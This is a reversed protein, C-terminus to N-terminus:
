SNKCPVTSGLLAHLYIDRMDAIDRARGIPPNVLVHNLFLVKSATKRYWKIANDTFPAYLRPDSKLTATFGAKYDPTRGMFGYSLRSWYAIASRAKLLDESSRSPMFYRHTIFGEPEIDTLIQSSDPDHLAEYLRSMSYASNRFARHKTVDLVKEGYIYVERGDNLSDLYESATMMENSPNPNM